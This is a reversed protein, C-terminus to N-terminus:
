HDTTRLINVHVFTIKEVFDLFEAAGNFCCEDYEGHLPDLRLVRM